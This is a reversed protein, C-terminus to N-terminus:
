PVVEVRDEVGVEQTTMLGTPLTVGPPTVSSSLFTEGEVGKFSTFEQAGNAANAALVLKFKKRADNTNETVKGIVAGEVVVLLLEECNVETFVNGGGKRSLKVGAEGAKLEGLTGELEATAIEGIRTMIEASTCDKGEYKCGDFVIRMDITKPGTIEGSGTSKKTCEIKGVVTGGQWPKTENEAIYFFVKSPTGKLTLKKKVVAQLEWKGTGMVKSEPTCGSSTYNGGRKKVCERFEPAAANALPAFTAGFVLATVLCVGVLQIRRV